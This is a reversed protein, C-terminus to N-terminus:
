PVFALCTFNRPNGGAAQADWMNSWLLRGDGAENFQGLCTTCVVSGEFAPMPEDSWSREIEARCIYELDISQNRVGTTKNHQRPGNTPSLLTARNAVQEAYTLFSSRSHREILRKQVGSVDDLGYCCARVGGALYCELNTGHDMKDRERRITDLVSAGTAPRDTERPVLCDLGAHAFWVGIVQGSQNRDLFFFAPSDANLFAMVAPQRSKPDIPLYGVDGQLNMRVSGRGGVIEYLSGLTAGAGLSGFNTCVDNKFAVRLVHVPASFYEEAVRVGALYDGTLASFNHGSNGRGWMALLVNGSKGFKEVHIPEM